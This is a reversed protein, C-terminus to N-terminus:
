GESRWLILLIRDSYPPLPGDDFTLVVERHALPLTQRYQMRGLRPYDAARVILERSVGLADPRGPCSPEAAAAGCALAFAVGLFIRQMKSQRSDPLASRRSWISARRM